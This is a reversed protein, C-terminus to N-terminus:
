EAKTAGHEGGEWGHSGILPVFRVPAVERQEIREGRRTCVILHQTERDGVPV